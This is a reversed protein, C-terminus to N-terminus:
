AKESKEQEIGKEIKDLEEFIDPAGCINSSALLVIIVFVATLVAGAAILAIGWWPM